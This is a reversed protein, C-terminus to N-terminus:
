KNRRFRLWSMHWRFHWRVPPQYSSGTQTPFSIHINGGSISATLTFGAPTVPVLFFFGYNITPDGAAIPTGEFQLTNTSGNFTIKVLNTNNDTLPVTEWTTWGNLPILFTGLFFPPQRVFKLGDGWGRKHPYCSGDIPQLRKLFNVPM